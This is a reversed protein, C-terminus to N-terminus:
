MLRLPPAPIAHSAGKRIASILLRRCDSPIPHRPFRRPCSPSSCWRTRRLLLQEVVAFPPPRRQLYNYGAVPMQRALSSGVNGIYFANGAAASRSRLASCLQCHLHFPTKTPQAQGVALIARVASGVAASRAPVLAPSQSCCTCVSWQFNALGPSTQASPPYVAEFRM